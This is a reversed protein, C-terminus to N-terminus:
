VPRPSLVVQHRQDSPRAPGRRLGRAVCFVGHGGVAAPRCTCQPHGPICALHYRQTCIPRAFRAAPLHRRMRVWSRPISQKLGGLHQALAARLEFMGRGSVSDVVRLQKVQLEPAPRHTSRGPEPEDRGMTAADEGKAMQNLRATHAQIDENLRDRDPDPLPVADARSVIPFVVASPHLQMCRM